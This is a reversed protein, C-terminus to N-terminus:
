MLSSRAIWSGSVSAMTFLCIWMRRLSSLGFSLSFMVDKSRFSTRKWATGSFILFKCHARISNGM